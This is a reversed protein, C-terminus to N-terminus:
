QKPHEVFFAWMLDTAPVHNGSMHGGPWNHHGGQIAYLKVATGDKCGTYAQAHVASTEEIKAKASCEDERAWFSVASAVSNDVRSPGIQFRGTGGDFAVHQDATGHFVIVSVPAGPRCEVNQAGEVPAIAAVKDAAECALRYSMMGGNSIGTVYVRKSDVSYDHELKDILASLFAVDDVKNELAYGCCNGSNWTPMRSLRGTGSPYAVLFNESDAKASMGSMWEASEPSQGGGHLVLVLPLSKKGDYAPPTHVFYARKRGGIELSDSRKEPASANEDSKWVSAAVLLGALYVFLAVVTLAIISKHRREM